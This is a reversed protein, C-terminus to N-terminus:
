LGKHSLIFVLTAINNNECVEIYEENISYLLAQNNKDSSNNKMASLENLSDSFIVM